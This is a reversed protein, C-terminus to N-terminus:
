SLDVADAAFIAEAPQTRKTARPERMFTSLVLALAPVAILTAFM